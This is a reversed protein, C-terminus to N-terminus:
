GASAPRAGSEKDVIDGRRKEPRAKAAPHGGNKWRYLRWARKKIVGGTKTRQVIIL